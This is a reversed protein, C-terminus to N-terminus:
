AKYYDSAVQMMAFIYLATTVVAFWFQPIRHFPIKVNDDIKESTLTRPTTGGSNHAKIAQIMFWTTLLAWVITLALTLGGTEFINLLYM